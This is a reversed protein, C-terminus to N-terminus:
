ELLRARLRRQGLRLVAAGLTDFGGACQRRFFYLSTASSRDGILGADVDRGRLERFHLRAEIARYNASWASPM